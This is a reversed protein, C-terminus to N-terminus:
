SSAAFAARVRERLGSDNRWLRVLAVDFAVFLGLTWGNLLSVLATPLIHAFWGTVAAASILTTAIPGVRDGSGQKVSDGRRGGREFRRVAVMVVGAGAGVAAPLWVRLVPRDADAAAAILFVGSAIPVGILAALFVILSRRTM